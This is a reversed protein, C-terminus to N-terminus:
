HPKAIHMSFKAATASERGPFLRDGPVINHISYGLKKLYNEIQEPTNGMDFTTAGFEFVLCKIRKQRLMEEAGLLVQYEAGEVDIKLLDIYDISNDECFKDITISQIEEYKIPKIEIGYDELPRKAMSNWGSFEDPYEYFNILGIKDSVALNYLYINKRGSFHIISELKKFVTSSAEFSFVKGTEGVYKSFLLTIEGINAGVDFIIMGEQIYKIYFIYEEKEVDIPKAYEHHFLFNLFRKIRFPIIRQLKPIFIEYILKM